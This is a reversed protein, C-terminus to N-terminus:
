RPVYKVGLPKPALFFNYAAGLLVLIVVLAALFPGVTTDDGVKAPGLLQARPASSARLRSHKGKDRPRPWTKPKLESALRNLQQSARGEGVVFLEACGCM